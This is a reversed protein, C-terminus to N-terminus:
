YGVSLLIRYQHLTVTCLFCMQNNYCSHLGRCLNTQMCSCHFIITAKNQHSFFIFHWMANDQGSGSILKAHM